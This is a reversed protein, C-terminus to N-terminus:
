STIEALALSSVVGKEIEQMEDQTLRGLFRQIRSKDITFIQELQVVSPKEFATNHAILVHTPQYRKKETRSTVTAVILTPAYRNGVDNQLVVVPRTGGQESGIHPEMDAYYIDGRLYKWDKPINSVGADDGVKEVSLKQAVQTSTLDSRAGQNKIAELKMKYAFARESPLIHERQLNSDVMLIVAADDSMQRVIVQLTDLWALKAAYQRRHGSIIEYGDGDPRPRAILPALVGYQAISEVTRTMAEDDLVKFPHNTFPHLDDIHIQQAKERPEAQRNEATSLLEAKGKLALNGSDIPM